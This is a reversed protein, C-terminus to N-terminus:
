PAQRSRAVAVVEGYAVLLLVMVFFQWDRSHLDALASLAVGYGGWFVWMLFRWRNM